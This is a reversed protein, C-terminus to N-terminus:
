VRSHAAQRIYEALSPISNKGSVRDKLYDWFSVQNAVHKLWGLEVSLLCSELDQYFPFKVTM